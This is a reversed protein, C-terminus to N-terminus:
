RCDLHPVYHIHMYTVATHGPSSGSALPRLFRNPAVTGSHGACTTLIPPSGWLLGLTATVYSFLPSFHVHYKTSYSYRKTFDNLEQRREDIM